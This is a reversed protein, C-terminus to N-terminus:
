QLYHMWSKPFSPLFTWLSKGKSSTSKLNISHYVWNCPGLLILSSSPVPSQSASAQWVKVKRDGYRVEVASGLRASVSKRGLVIIRTRSDDWLSLSKRERSANSAHYSGVLSYTNIGPTPTCSAHRLIVRDCGVARQEAASSLRILSNIM